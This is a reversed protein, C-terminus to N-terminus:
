YIRHIDGSFSPQAAAAVTLPSSAGFFEALVPDAVVRVPKAKTQSHAPISYPVSYAAKEAKGYNIPQMRANGPGIKQIAAEGPIVVLAACFAAGLVAVVAYIPSFARSRLGLRRMEHGIM